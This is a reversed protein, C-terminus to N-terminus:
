DGNFIVRELQEKEEADKRRAEREEKLKTERLSIEDKVHDKLEKLSYLRSKLVPGFKEDWNFLDLTIANQIKKKNHVSLSKGEQQIWHDFFHLCQLPTWLTSACILILCFITEGVDPAQIVKRTSSNKVFREIKTKDWSVSKSKAEGKKANTPTATAYSTGPGDKIKRVQHATPNEEKKVVIASITESSTGPEEKIKKVQHPYPDEETTVYEEKVKKVQEATAKEEIEFYEEEVKRKINNSAMPIHYPSM